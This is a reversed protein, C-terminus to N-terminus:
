QIEHEIEQANLREFESENYEVIKEICWTGKYANPDEPVEKVTAVVDMMYSGKERKHILMRYKKKTDIDDSFFINWPVNIIETNGEFEFSFQHM